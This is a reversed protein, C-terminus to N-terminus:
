GRRALPKLELMPVLECRSVDIRTHLLTGGCRHLVPLIQTLTLASVVLFIASSGPPM